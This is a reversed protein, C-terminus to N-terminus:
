VMLKLRTALTDAMFNDIAGTDVLAEIEEKNIWINLYMLGKEVTLEMDQKETIEMCRLTGLKHLDEIEANSKGKETYDEDGQIARLVNLAKKHPCEVFRHSGNCLFCRVSNRQIVLETSWQLTIQSVGHERLTRVKEFMVQSTHTQGMPVGIVKTWKGM